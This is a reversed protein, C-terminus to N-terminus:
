PALRWMAWGDEGREFCWRDHLRSPQGRWFEILTPRLRYGGWDAPRPIPGDGYHEGLEAVRRELLVREAIPQSQESAWVALRSGRPRSAFYSDSEHAPLQEVRGEVRVQRVLEPWYMVLAAWPNQALERGKRSTYSTYFVFGDADANKLLVVRASPRGDPTATALTMTHAREGQAALAEAFWRAFQLLPDPVLDYESSTAGTIQLFDALM